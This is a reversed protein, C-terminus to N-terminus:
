GLGGEEHQYAGEGVFLGAAFGDEGGVGVGDALAVSEEGVAVAHQQYLDRLCIVSGTCCKSKTPQKPSGIFGARRLM